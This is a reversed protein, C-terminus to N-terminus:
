CIHKPIPIIRVEESGYVRQHEFADDQAEDAYEYFGWTYWKGYLYYDVQYFM